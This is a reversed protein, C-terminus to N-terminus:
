PDSRILSSFINKKSFNMLPKIRLLTNDSAKINNEWITIEVENKNM